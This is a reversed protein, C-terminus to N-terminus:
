KRERELLRIAYLARAEDNLGMFIELRDNRTGVLEIVDLKDPMSVKPVNYLLGFVTTRLQGLDQDYGLCSAITKFRESTTKCYDSLILIISPESSDAKFKRKKSTTGEPQSTGKNCASSKEIGDFNILQESQPSSDNNLNVYNSNSWENEAVGESEHATYKYRVTISVDTM